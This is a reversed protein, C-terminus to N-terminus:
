DCSLPLSVNHCLNKNGYLVSSEQCLVLGKSSKNDLNSTKNNLVVDKLLYAGIKNKESIGFHHCKIWQSDHIAENEVVCYDNQLANTKDELKIMLDTNEKSIVFYSSICETISTEISSSIIYQSNFKKTELLSGFTVCCCRRM